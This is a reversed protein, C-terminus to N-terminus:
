GSYGQEVVKKVPNCWPGFGEPTIPAFRWWVFVGGVPVKVSCKVQTSGSALIWKNDDDPLEGIVYQWVYARAHPVAKCALLIENGRQTVNIVPKNYRDTKQSIKFGSSLIHAENGKAIRDVYLAVKRFADDTIDRTDHMIAIKEHDGSRSATYDAVLKDTLTTLEGLEVDPNTFLAHDTLCVIIHRYFAIKKPVPTKIFSLLVKLKRM